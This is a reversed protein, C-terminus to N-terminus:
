RHRSLGSGACGCAQDNSLYRTSWSVRCASPRPFDDTCANRHACLMTLLDTPTNVKATVGGTETSGYGEIIRFQLGVQLFESAKQSLPASGIECAFHAVERSLLFPLCSKGSGMWELKGGLLMKIKNMLLRDWVPHHIAGNKKFNAIKADFARRALAGKLGPADVTQAAIATYIRNLVRPVTISSDPQAIQFDELLRLNDGVSFAIAGGLM